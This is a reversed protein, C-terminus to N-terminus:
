KNGKLQGCGVQIQPLKIFRAPQQFGKELIVRICQGPVLKKALNEPFHSGETLGFRQLLQARLRDYFMLRGGSPRWAVAKATAYPALAGAYDSALSLEENGKVVLMAYYSADPMARRALTLFRCLHTPAWDITCITMVNM